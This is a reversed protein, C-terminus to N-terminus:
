RAITVHTTPSQQVTEMIITVSSCLLVMYEQTSWVTATHPLCCPPHPPKVPVYYYNITSSQMILCRKVLSSIGPNHSVADAELARLNAKAKAQFHVQFHFDFRKRAYTIGSGALLNRLNRLDKDKSEDEGWVKSYNDQVITCLM